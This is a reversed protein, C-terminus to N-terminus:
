FVYCLAQSKILACLRLLEYSSKKFFIPLESHLNVKQADYFPTRKAHM